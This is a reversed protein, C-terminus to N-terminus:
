ALQLILKSSCVLINSGALYQESTRSGHLKSLWHGAIDQQVQQGRARLGSRDSFLLVECCSIKDLSLSLVACALGTVKRYFLTM